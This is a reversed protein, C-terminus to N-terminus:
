NISIEDVFLHGRSNGAGIWAPLERASVATVKVYRAPVTAFELAHTYIGDAAASEVPPFDERGVETYTEGDTSVAVAMSCLDVIWHGTEVLTNISVRSVDQTEGLDVVAVMDNGCFGLWRGSKFSSKGLVGDVLTSAGDFTYKPNIPELM